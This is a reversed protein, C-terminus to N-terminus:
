ENDAETRKKKTAPSNAQSNRAASMLFSTIDNLEQAALSSGYNAPMLSDPQRAFSTLESKLFLHFDGDLGQLQLSFNDENRLLGSYEQGDHTKVLIKYGRGNVPAPKTIAERIEAASHTGAFESLDAALFGGTGSVMHCDSCRAKGYFLQRGRQAKGPLPAMPARNQLLRLYSIANRIKYSGMAGFSPMGTGPLGQDIIKFLEDDSRRQTKSSTAIDPAREGGRGDLGHCGSCRSEFAKRSDDSPASTQQTESKPLASGHEQPTAVAAFFLPLTLAVFRGTWGRGSFRRFYAM